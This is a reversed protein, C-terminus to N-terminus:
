VSNMFEDFEHNVRGDAFWWSCGCVSWSITLWGVQTSFSGSYIRWFARVIYISIFANCVFWHLLNMDKSPKHFFWWHNRISSDCIVLWILCSDGPYVSHMCLEYNTGSKDLNTYLTYAANTNVRIMLPCLNSKNLNSDNRYVTPLWMHAIWM